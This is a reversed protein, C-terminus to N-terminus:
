RRYVEIRRTTPRGEPVPEWAVEIQNQGPVLSLEGTLFSADRGQFVTGENGSTANRVVLGEILRPLGNDAARCLRGRLRVAPGHAAIPRPRDVGDLCGVDVLQAEISGSPEGLAVAEHSPSVMRQVTFLLGLSAVALFVMADWSQSIKWKPQM